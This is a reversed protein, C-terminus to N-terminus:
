FYDKPRTLYLCWTMRPFFELSELSIIYINQIKYRKIKIHLYIKTKLFKCTYYLFQNFFMFVLNIQNSKQIQCM